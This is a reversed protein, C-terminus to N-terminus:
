VFLEAAVADGIKRANAAQEAVNVRVTRWNIGPRARASGARASKGVNRGNEFGIPVDGFSRREIGVRSKNEVTEATMIQLETILHVLDAIVDILSIETDAFDAYRGSLTRLWQYDFLRSRWAAVLASGKGPFLAEAVVGAPRPDFVTFGDFAVAKIRRPPIASVHASRLSALAAGASAALLIRRRDGLM